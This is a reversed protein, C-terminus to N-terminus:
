RRQFEPSGLVKAADGLSADWRTRVGNMRNNALAIGFNIRNLM